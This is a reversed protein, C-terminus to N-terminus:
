VSLSRNRLYNCLSSPLGNVIESGPALTCVSRARHIKVILEYLFTLLDAGM